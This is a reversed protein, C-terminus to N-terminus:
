AHSSIMLSNLSWLSSEFFPIMVFYQSISPEFTKVAPFRNSYEDKVCVQRMFDDIKLYTQTHTHTTYIYEANLHIWFAGNNSGHM